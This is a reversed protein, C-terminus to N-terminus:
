SFHVYKGINELVVIVTVSVPPLYGILPYKEPIPSPLYDKNTFNFPIQFNGYPVHFDVWKKIVGTGFSLIFINDKLKKFLQHSSLYSNVREIFYGWITFIYFM